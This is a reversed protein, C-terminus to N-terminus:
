PLSTSVSNSTGTANTASVTVSQVATINGNVAITVSATFQSGVTASAATQYWSTFASDTNIPISTTQLNSGPAGTFQLTIQTVSRTTAYGSILLEFSSATKVGPQVNRLVPPGPAIAISKVQPPAPGLSATGTLFSPTLTIIGAVTGTQFQIANASGFLATTTNAPIRFSATLGGTAFQITPDNVFANSAFSLALTGTIDLPYPASLSLGISPQTAPAASDGAGTFTFSPLAPPATGFGKLTFTQSDVGLTGTLTGLANPSFTAPISLTSGPSIFAPLPPITIGFYQGSVSISNTTTPTNGANLVNVTGSVTSGVAANPFTATGNNALPVASSGVVFTFVLQSGTGTQNTGTGVLFFQFSGGSGTGVTLTTTQVATTQPTFTLTVVGTQNGQLPLISPTASFLPSGSSANVQVPTTGTNTILLQIAFSTLLPTAPFPISGQNAIAVAAPATPDKYQFSLNPLPAPTQAHAAAAVVLGLLVLKRRM